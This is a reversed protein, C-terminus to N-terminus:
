FRHYRIMFAFAALVFVLPGNTEPVVSMASPPLGRTTLYKGTRFALIMDSSDFQSDLNWDGSEWGAAIPKDYAGSKFVAVLDGSDFYGDLNADGFDAGLYRHIMTEADAFDLAGSEDLDFPTIEDPANRIQNGLLDIDSGDMAGDASYDVAALDYLVISTNEGTSAKLDFMGGDRFTGQIRNESIQPAFAYVNLSSRDEMRIDVRRPDSLADARREITGGRFNLTSDDRLWVVDHETAVLNGSQFEAVTHHEMALGIHDTAVIDNGIFEIHGQQFARVLIFDKDSGINDILRVSGNGSVWAISSDSRLNSSVVALRSEGNAAIAAGDRVNIDARTVEAVANDGVFVGSGEENSLMAHTLSLRSQGIMRVAAGGEGGTIEGGTITVRSNDQGYVANADDNWIVGGTVQLESVDKMVISHGNWATLRGSHFDVRSQDHATVGSPFPLFQGYLDLEGGNFEVTAQDFVSVITEADFLDLDDPFQFSGSEVRLKGREIVDVQGGITGGDLSLLSTGEVSSPTNPEAGIKGGSVVRVTVPGSEGDVVRVGQNISNSEEITTDSNITVLEAVSLSCFLAWALCVHWSLSPLLDRM